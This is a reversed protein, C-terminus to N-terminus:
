GTKLRHGVPLSRPRDQQWCERRRKNGTIGRMMGVLERCMLRALGGTQSVQTSKAPEIGELEGM